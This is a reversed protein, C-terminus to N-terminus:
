ILQEKIGELFGVSSHILLEDEYASSYRLLRDIFTIYILISTLIAVRGKLIGTRGRRTIPKSTIIVVLRLISLRLM